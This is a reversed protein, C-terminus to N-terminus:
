ITKEQTGTKKHTEYLNCTTIYLTDGPHINNINGSPVLIEETKVGYMNAIKSVTDGSEVTYEIVESEVKNSDITICPNHVITNITAVKPLPAIRVTNGVLVGKHLNIDSIEELNEISIGHEDIITIISDSYQTTYYIDRYRETVDLTTWRMIGEVISAAADNKTLEDEGVEIPFDITLQSVNDILSANTLEKEIATQGRWIGKKEGSRIIPSFSYETLSANICAALIDSSYQRKNSFDGMVIANNTEKNELGSEINIIVINSDPNNSIAKEVKSALDSDKNVIENSVGLKSLMASAAAGVSVTEKETTRLIVHLNRFDCDRTTILDQYIYDNQELSIDPKEPIRDKINSITKIGGYVAVITITSFMLAEIIRYGGDSIKLNKIKIPKSKEEKNKEKVHKTKTVHIPYSNNKSNIRHNYSKRARELAEEPTKFGSKTVYFTKNNEDVMYYKYAYGDEKKIIQIKTM